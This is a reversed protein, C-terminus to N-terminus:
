LWLLEATQEGAVRLPLLSFQLLEAALEGLDALADRRKLGSRSILV